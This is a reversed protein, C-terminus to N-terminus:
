RAQPPPHKSNPDTVLWIDYMVDSDVEGNGKRPARWLITADTANIEERVVTAADSLETVLEPVAPKAAVESDKIYIKPSTISIGPYLNQGNRTVIAKIVYYYHEEGPAVSLFFTTDDKSAM